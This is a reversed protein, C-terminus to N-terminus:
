CFKPRGCRFPGALYSYFLDLPLSPVNWKWEGFKLGKNDLWIVLRRSFVALKLKPKHKEPFRSEEVYFSSGLGFLNKVIREAEDLVERDTSILSIGNRRDVNGDGQLFGVLRWFNKNVLIGQKIVLEKRKGHM